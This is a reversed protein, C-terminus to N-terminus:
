LSQIWNDVEKIRESMSWKHKQTQMNAIISKRFSANKLRRISNKLSELDDYHCAIGFGNNNIMDKADGDPLAALIPICLNIYEYIKSPVCAGFYDGALSVFGIDFNKQVYDIYKSHEMHPILKCKKHNSKLKRLKRENGIIFIEVESIEKTIEILLKPNQAKGLAGGYGIRLLGNNLPEKNAIDAVFGFYNNKIKNKIEPYKKILSSKYSESSTIILDMEKLYKSEEKERSVHFIKNLKMDNVKSYDLPDHFNAITKCGTEKKLMYALKICGLEGGSTAFVYDENTLTPQILKYAYKIWTDLYDEFIGIMELPISIMKNLKIPIYIVNSNKQINNNKYNPTIVIIEYGLQELNKVTGSRIITGGTLNPLYSRTIYIIRKM